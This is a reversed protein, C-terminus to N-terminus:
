EQIDQSCLGSTGQVQSGVECKYSADRNWSQKIIYDYLEEDIIKDECRELSALCCLRHM